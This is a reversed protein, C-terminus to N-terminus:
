ASPTPESRLLRAAWNLLSRVGDWLPLKPRDDIPLKVEIREIVSNSVYSIGSRGTLVVATMEAFRAVLIGDVCEAGRSCIVHTMKGDKHLLIASAARYYSGAFNIAFLGVLMGVILAWAPLLRVEVHYLAVNFLSLVGLVVAGAMPNLGVSPRLTFFSFSFVIASAAIGFRWARYRNVTLKKNSGWGSVSKYFGSLFLLAVVLPSVKVAESAIDSATLFESGSVGLGWTTGALSAAGLVLSFTVVGATIQPIAGLVALTEARDRELLRAEDPSSRSDATSDKKDAMM